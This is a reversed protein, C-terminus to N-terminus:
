ISSAILNFMLQISMLQEVTLSYLVHLIQPRVATTVFLIIMQSIVGHLGNFTLQRKPPVYRRRLWALYWCSLLISTPSHVENGTPESHSLIFGSPERMVV